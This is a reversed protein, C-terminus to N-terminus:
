PQAPLRRHVGAPLARRSARLGTRARGPRPEDHRRPLVTLCCVPHRTTWNPSSRVKYPRPRWRMSRSVAVELDPCETHASRDELTERDFYRCERGHGLENLQKAASEDDLYRNCSDCREVWSWGAPPDFGDPDAPWHIGALEGSPCDTCRVAQEDPDALDIRVVTDDDIRCVEFVTASSRQDRQTALAQEAADRSSKGYLDIEWVVRYEAEQSEIIDKQTKAIM